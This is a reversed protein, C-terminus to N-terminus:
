RRRVCKAKEWEGGGRRRNIGVEDHAEGGGFGGM